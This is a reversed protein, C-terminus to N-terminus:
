FLPISIKHIERAKEVIRKIHDMLEKFQDINASNILEKVQIILDLKFDQSTIKDIMDDKKETLDNNSQNEEINYNIKETIEKIQHVISDNEFKWDGMFESYLVTNSFKM